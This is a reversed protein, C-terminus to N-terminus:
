RSEAAELSLESLAEEFAGGQVFRAATGAAKVSAVLDM